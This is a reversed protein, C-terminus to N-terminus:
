RGPRPINPAPPAAPAHAAQNAGQRGPQNISTRQLHLTVSPSRQVETGRADVVVAAINHSGRDVNHATIQHVAAGTGPVGSQSLEGDIALKLLHSGSLPPDTTVTVNLTGENSRIASDDAPSTIALQQYPAEAHPSAEPKQSSTNRSTMPPPQVVNTPKLEVQDAGPRPQDSYVRKGDADTWSYIQATALGSYIGLICFLSLLLRLM